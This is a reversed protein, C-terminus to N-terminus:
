ARQAAQRLADGNRGPGETHLARGAERFEPGAEATGRGERPKRGGRVTVFVVNRILVDSSSTIASLM